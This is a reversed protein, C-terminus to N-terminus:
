VYKYKIFTFYIKGLTHLIDLFDQIMDMPDLKPDPVRQLEDAFEEEYIEFPDYRHDELFKRAEVVCEELKIALDCTTPNKCVVIREQPKSCYRLVTVIDSSTDVSSDFLKELYEFEARLRAPECQQNLTISTFALM